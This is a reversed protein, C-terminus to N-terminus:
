EHSFRPRVRDHRVTWASGRPLRGHGRRGTFDRLVRRLEQPHEAAGHRLRVGDRADRRHRHVVGGAAGPRPRPHRPWSRRGRRRHRRRHPRLHRHRRRRVHRREDRSRLRDRGRPPHCGPRDRAGQAAVQDRDLGRRGERFRAGPRRVLALPARRAGVDGGQSGHRLPHRLSRVDGAQDLVRPIGKDRALELVPETPQKGRVYVIAHVDAVVATRVSQINTLGTLMVAGPSPFALIESMGDSAVVTEIDAVGAGDIPTLAKCCLAAAIEALKM